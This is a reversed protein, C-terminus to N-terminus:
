RRRGLPGLRSATVPRHHRAAARRHRRARRHRDVAAPRRGACPDRRHCAPDSRSPHRRARSRPYTPRSRCRPSRCRRSRRRYLYRRRRPRGRRPSRPQRSPRPRPARSRSSRSTGAMGSWGGAARVVVEHLLAQVPDRHAEHEPAHRLRLEPEPPGVAARDRPREDRHLGIDEGPRRDRHVRPPGLRPRRARGRDRGAPQDQAHAHRRGAAGASFTTSAILRYRDDVYHRLGATWGQPDVGASVPLAYRNRAACTRSTAARRAVPQPGAPRVQHQAHDPRRRGHVM